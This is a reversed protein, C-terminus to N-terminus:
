FHTLKSKTPAIQKLTAPILNLPPTIPGGSGSGSGTGGSGTGGSGTGGPTPCGSGNTGHGSGNVNNNNNNNNNNSYIANAPPTWDKYLFLAIYLNM